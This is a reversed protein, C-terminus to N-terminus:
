DRRRAVACTAPVGAAAAIDRWDFAAVAADDHSAFLAGEPFGPLPGSHLWIGDTTQTVAGRFTAVHALTDRDFLHFRNVRESQDAAIWYGSGDPCSRLAIGEAQNVYQGHGVNRGAYRGALDYVKLESGASMDEEALLLRDHDPDGWISEVIRLAGSTRTDGFSGIYRADVRDATRSVEYQKVREGLSELPPVSGDPAEYADTVYVRLRGEGLDRLWLGYPLRLQEAGFSALPVLEPLRLVQVRRNDREVVFALDGSIAIGNPRQLQGPAVGPGGVRRLLRGDGADFVLLQDTEKATAIVQAGGEPPAYVSMSDVNDAPLLATVYREQVVPLQRYGRDVVACGSALMALSLLSARILPGVRAVAARDRSM